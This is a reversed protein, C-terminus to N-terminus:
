VGVSVSVEDSWYGTREDICIAKYKWLAIEGATPLPFTDIYNPYADMALFTYSGTNGRDVHIEIASM